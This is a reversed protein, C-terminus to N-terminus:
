KETNVEISKGDTTIVVTGNVDTRYVEAGAAELRSVVKESPHGYSNGAGVSIVAYEPSVRRLFEESTSTDSGHHGVKLVDASVDATIEQESLTEADGTFLFSVDGCTYKIVASYNNLDDYSDGNPAAMVAAEGSESFITVGSKATKIKLGKNSVATLVDKFTTTTHRRNPMYIEGIDFNNIVDDLGGIHDEHPHTGVLWDIRSIGLGSIYEVVNDGDANNGADILMNKGGATRVLISDAQGVDIFHVAATGSPQESELMGTFTDIESPSCAAASFVAALAVAAGIRKILKIM